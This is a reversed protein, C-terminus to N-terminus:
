NHRPAFNLALSFLGASEPSDTFNLSNSASAFSAMTEAELTSPYVSLCTSSRRGGFGSRPSRDLGTPKLSALSNLLAGATIALSNASAMEEPLLPCRM